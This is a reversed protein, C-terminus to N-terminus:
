KVEKMMQEKVVKIYTNLATTILDKASVRPLLSAESYINEAKKYVNPDIKINIWKTKLHLSMKENVYNEQDSIYRDGGIQDDLYDGGHESEFQKRYREELKYAKM